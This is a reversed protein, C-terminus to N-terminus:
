DALRAAIQARSALGLKGLIHSVHTDATRRSMALQAAIQRNTLGQAILAAVERERQSLSAPKGRFGHDEPSAPASGPTKAPAAGVAMAEAVTDELPMARGEAWAAAFTREGLAARAAALGPECEARGVPSLPTGIVERLADAAGFLQAAQAAQGQAAAIGALGEFCEAV